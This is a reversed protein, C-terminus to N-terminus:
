RLDTQSIPPFEELKIMTHNADVQFINYSYFSESDVVEKEFEELSDQIEKTWEPYADYEFLATRHCSIRHCHCVIYKIVIFM